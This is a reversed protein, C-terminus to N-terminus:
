DHRQLGSCPRRRRWRLCRLLCIKATISARKRSIRPLWDVEPQNAIPSKGINKICETTPVEEYVGLHKVFEIEEKRAQRVAEVDLEKGTLEDFIQEAEEDEFDGEIMLTLMKTWTVEEQDDNM